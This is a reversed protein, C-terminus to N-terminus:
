RPRIRPLAHLWLAQRLAHLRLERHFAAAEGEGGGRADRGACVGRRRQNGWWSPLVPVGREMRSGFIRQLFPLHIEVAHEHRHAEGDLSFGTKKALEGAAASDAKVRGLPTEFYDAPSLACGRVRAQHPPALIVVVGPDMQRIVAYGAAAVDGSYMYGAHPLIFVLSGQCAGARRGPCADRRDDIGAGAGRRSVMARGTRFAEGRSQHNKRM